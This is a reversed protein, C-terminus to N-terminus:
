TRQRSANRTPKPFAKQEFGKDAGANWMDIMEQPEIARGSRLGIRDVILAMERVVKQVEFLGRVVPIHATAIDGTIATLEKTSATLDAINKYNKNTSATM